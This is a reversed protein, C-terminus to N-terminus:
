PSFRKTELVSFRYFDDLPKLSVPAMSAGYDPIDSNGPDLRREILTSGRYDSAVTDKTADFVNAASSRAKKITQVRFFVRFTNSKTSIKAYLNTYPRERTNDGTLGRGGPGAAGWFNGMDSAAYPNTVPAPDSGDVGPGNGAVKKPILQIECIQSATRFLGHAGTPSWAASSFKFRDEFQRITGQVTAGM